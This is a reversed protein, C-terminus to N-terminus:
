IPQLFYIKTWKILFCLNLLFIAFKIEPLVFDKNKTENIQRIFGNEVTKENMLEVYSLNASQRM